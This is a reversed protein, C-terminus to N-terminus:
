EDDPGGPRKGHGLVIKGEPDVAARLPKALVGEPDRLRHSYEPHSADEELVLGTSASDGTRYSQVARARANFEALEEATPDRREGTEPDLFLVRGAAPASGEVATPASSRSEGDCSRFLLLSLISVFAFVYM